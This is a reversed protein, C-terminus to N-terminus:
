AARKLHKAVFGRPGARLRDPPVRQLVRSFADLEVPSSVVECDRRYRLEHKLEADGSRSIVIVRPSDGVATLSKVVDTWFRNGFFAYATVVADVSCRTVDKIESPDFVSHATWGLSGAALRIQQHEELCPSVILLHQGKM